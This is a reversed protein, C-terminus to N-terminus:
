ENLFSDIELLFYFEIRIIQRIIIEGVTTEM